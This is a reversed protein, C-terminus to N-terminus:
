LVYEDFAWLHKKVDVCGNPKLTVGELKLLEEQEKWRPALRGANNVVRHCPLNLQVPSERMLRGVMRSHNPWGALAAVRGYTLVKGEPIAAVVQYVGEVFDKDM